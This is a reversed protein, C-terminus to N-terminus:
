EGAPATQAPAGAPALHAQLREVLRGACSRWDSQV